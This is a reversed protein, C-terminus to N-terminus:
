HTGSSRIHPYCLVDFSVDAGCHPCTGEVFRDALFRFNQLDLQKPFPHNACKNCGECFTQEKEARELFDNKALNLYIEQCIRPSVTFELFVVPPM